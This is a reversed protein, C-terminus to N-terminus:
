EKSLDELIKDPTDGNKLREAIIKARDKDRANFDMNNKVYITENPASYYFKFTDNTGLISVFVMFLFSVFIAGALDNMFLKFKIWSKSIYSILGIVLIAIFAYNMFASLLYAMDIWLCLSAVIQIITLVFFFLYAGILLRKNM